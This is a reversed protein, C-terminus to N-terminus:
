EISDGSCCSINVLAYRSHEQFDPLNRPTCPAVFIRIGVNSRMLDRMVAGLSGMAKELASKVDSTGTMLSFVIGTLSSIVLFRTKIDHNLKSLEDTLAMYKTCHIM